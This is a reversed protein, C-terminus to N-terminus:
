ATASPKLKHRHMRVPPRKERSRLPFLRRHETLFLQQLAAPHNWIASHNVLEFLEFYYGVQSPLLYTGSIIDLKKKLEGTAAPCCSSFSRMVLCIQSSTLNFLSDRKKTQLRAFWPWILVWVCATGDCRNLLPVCVNWEPKWGSWCRSVRDANLHIWLVKNLETLLYFLNM